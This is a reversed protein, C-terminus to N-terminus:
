PSSLLFAGDGTGQGPQAGDNIVAYAIFPNSGSTKTIKIYGQTTGLAYQSLISGIQMWGKAKLTISDLSKVKL